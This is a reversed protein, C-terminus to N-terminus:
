EHLFFGFCCKLFLELLSTNRRWISHLMVLCWKNGELPFVPDLRVWQFGAVTYQRTYFESSIRLAGPLNTEIIISKMNLYMAFKCWTTWFKTRNNLITVQEGPVSRYIKLTYPSRVNNVELTKALYCKLMPVTGVLILPSLLVNQRVCVVVVTPLTTLFVSTDFGRLLCSSTKRKKCRNTLCHCLFKLIDQFESFWYRWICVLEHNWYWNAM